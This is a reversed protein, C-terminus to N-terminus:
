TDVIGSDELLGVLHAILEVPSSHRRLLRHLEEFAFRRSQRSAEACLALLAHRIDQVTIDVEQSSVGAPLDSQALEALLEGGVPTDKAVVHIRDLEPRRELASVAQVIKGTWRAASVEIADELNQGLRIEIDGATGASRDTTSVAKTDVRRRDNRQEHVAKLFAGLLYQEYHGQSPKQLLADIVVMSRPFTCRSVDIDPLTPVVRATSAIRSVMFSLAGELEALSRNQDSAWHVFERIIPRDVQAPVYGSRFTSTEAASARAEIGNSRLFSRLRDSVVRDGPIRMNSGLDGADPDTLNLPRGAVVDYALLILAMDRVADPVALLEDFMDVPTPPVVAKSSGEPGLATSFSTRLLDLVPTSYNTAGRPVCQAYADSGAPAIIEEHTAV